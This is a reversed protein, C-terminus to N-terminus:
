PDKKEHILGWSYTMCGGNCGRINDHTAYTADVSTLVEYINDDWIIIDDGINQYLLKLM